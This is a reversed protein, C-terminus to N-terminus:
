AEPAPTPWAWTGDTDGNIVHEAWYVDPGDLLVKLNVAGAASGARVVIAPLLQGTRVHPARTPTAARQRAIARVDAHSLRYLVQGGLQPVRPPWFTSPGPAPAPCPQDAPHSM